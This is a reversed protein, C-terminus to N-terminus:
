SVAAYDSLRRALTPGPQAACSGGNSSREGGLGPPRKAEWFPGNRCRPRRVDARVVLGGSKRDPTRRVADGRHVMKILSYWRM